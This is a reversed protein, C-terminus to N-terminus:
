AEEVVTTTLEVKSLYETCWKKLSYVKVYLKMQKDFSLNTDISNEINNIQTIHLKFREEDSLDKINKFNYKTLEPNELINLYTTLLTKNENLRKTLSLFINNSIKKDPTLKEYTQIDDTLKKIEENLSM